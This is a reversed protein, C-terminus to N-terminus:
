VNGMSSRGLTWSTARGSDRSRSWNRDQVYGTNWVVSAYELIPRIHVKFLHVMFDPSRCVTDKLLNHAVAAAKRATTRAHEHFKLTDDVVM